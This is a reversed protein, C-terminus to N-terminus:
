QTLAGAPIRRERQGRADKTQELYDLREGQARPFESPRIPLLETPGAPTLCLDEVGNEPRSM